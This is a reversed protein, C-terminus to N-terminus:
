MPKLSTFRSSIAASSSSRYRHTARAAISVLVKQMRALDLGIFDRQDHHCASARIVAAKGVVASLVDIDVYQNGCAPVDLKVENIRL